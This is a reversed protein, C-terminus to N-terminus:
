VSSVIKGQAGAGQDAVVSFLTSYKNSNILFSEIQFTLFFTLYLLTGGKLFQM